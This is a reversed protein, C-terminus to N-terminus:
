VKIAKWKCPSRPVNLIADFCLLDGIKLMSSFSTGYIFDCASVHFYVNDYKKAGYKMFGYGNFIVNEVTGECNDLAPSVQVDKDWNNVKGQLSVRTDLIESLHM